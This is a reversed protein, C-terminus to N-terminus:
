AFLRNSIRKLLHADGGKPDNVLAQISDILEARHIPARKENRFYFLPESKGYVRDLLANQVDPNQIDGLQELSKQCFPRQLLGYAYAAKIRLTLRSQDSSFAGYAYERKKGLDTETEALKALKKLQEHCTISLNNLYQLYALGNALTKFGGHVQSFKKVADRSIGYIRFTRELDGPSKKILKDYIKEIEAYKEAQLQYTTSKEETVSALSFAMPLALSLGLSVVLINEASWIATAAITGIGLALIALTSAVKAVSWVQAWYANSEHLDKPAITFRENLVLPELSAKGVQVPTSANVTATSM